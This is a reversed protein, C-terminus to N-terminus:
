SFIEAYDWDSEEIIVESRASQIPSGCVSDALLERSIFSSTSMTSMNDDDEDVRYHWGDDSIRDGRVGATMMEPAADEEPNRLDDEEDAGDNRNSAAVLVDQANAPLKSKQGRPKKMLRGVEKAGRTRLTLEKVLDVWQITEKCAPCPGETPIVAGTIKDLALFRSSLCTIHSAARCDDLPCVVIMSSNQDVHETCVACNTGEGEALLFMSKEVHSKMGGYVVDLSELGGTGVMAAHPKSKAQGSEAIENAEAPPRKVDLIVKIEDDTAEPVRKSWAQWVRHVDECFFRVELPWRAFSPVRLLLHLNSVKDTLSM